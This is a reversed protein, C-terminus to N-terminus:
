FLLVKDRLYGWPGINTVFVVPSICMFYVKIPLIWKLRESMLQKIRRLAKPVCTGVPHLTPM